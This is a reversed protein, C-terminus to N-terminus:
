WKLMGPEPQPADTPPPNPPNEDPIDKQKSSNGAKTSDQPTKAMFRKFAPTENLLESLAEKVVDKDVVVGSQPTLDESHDETM